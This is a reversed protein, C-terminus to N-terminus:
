LVLGMKYISQLVRELTIGDKLYLDILSGPLGQLVQKSSRSDLYHGVLVKSPELVWTSPM